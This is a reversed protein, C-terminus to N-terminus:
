NNNEEAETTAETTTEPLTTNISKYNPNNKDVFVIENPKVMNLKERAIKEIFEPSNQNEQEYKLLNNVADAKSVEFLVSLTEDDLESKISLQHYISISFIVIMVVMSIRYIIKAPSKGKNKSM